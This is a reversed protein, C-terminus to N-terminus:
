VLLDTDNRLDYGESGEITIDKPLSAYIFDVVLAM